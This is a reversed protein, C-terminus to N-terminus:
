LEKVRKAYDDRETKLSKRAYDMVVEKDTVSPGKRWESTKNRVNMIISEYVLMSAKPKWHMIRDLM